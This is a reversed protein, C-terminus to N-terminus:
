IEFTKNMYGKKVEITESTYIPTYTNDQNKREVKVYYLGNPILCYYKGNKDTVKHTAEHETGASFIRIIAFRIPRKSDKYRMRGFPRPKLVTSKLVLLVVYVFLTVINYVKPAVYSALATIAFGVVFLINAIRNFWIDGRSFFRLLGQDRKAFENWDFNLPDMPINKTIVDGEQLTILENHYLDQYIEDSTQVALRKSPFEYNTKHALMRYTGPPVLFGYRGDLDTISTAVENGNMDQLVVYAPDLPQKTISDYVTGWPRSRKKIGLATMIIGWIRIPILFLESFSLPNSFLVTLVSMLFGSVAGVVMVVTAVPTQVAEIVRDLPAKPVYKSVIDVVKGGTFIRGGSSGGGGGGSGGGGGAGAGGGGTDGGGGTGLGGGLGFGGGSSGGSGGGSSPRWDTKVCYNSGPTTCDFKIWGDNQSWAYGSFEGTGTNITVGGNTPSFNIWGSNQGWAYGSLVGATTNSVGGNTPNLNIWGINEGWLNGTLATDTISVATGNTTRWVIRSGTTCATNTCLFSTYNSADITGTGAFVTHSSVVVCLILM